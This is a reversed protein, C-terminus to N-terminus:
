SELRAILDEVAVAPLTVTKLTGRAALKIALKAVTLEDAAEVINCFDYPGLLAYQALVKVGMSEVESNVELLRRPQDALTAFGEPGLTSLLVYTPM